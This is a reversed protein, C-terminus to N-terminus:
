VLFAFSDETMLVIRATTKQRRIVVMIAKCFHSLMCWLATTALLIVSDTSFRSAHDPDEDYSTAEEKARNCQVYM